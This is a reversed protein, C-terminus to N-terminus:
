NYSFSEISKSGTPASNDMSGFPNQMNPLPLAKPDYIIDHTLIEELLEELVVIDIDCIVMYDVIYSKTDRLIALMLHEVSIYEHAHEVSVNYSCELCSKVDDGLTVSSIGETKKFKSITEVLMGEMDDFKVKMKQEVFPILFSDVKIFSLMLHELAVKPNSFKLAIKKSLSLIEQSRPTFNARM